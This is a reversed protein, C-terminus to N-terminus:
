GDTSPVTKIAHYGIRQASLDVQDHGFRQGSEGPVGHIGKSGNAVQFSGPYRYVELLFVDVGHITGPLKEDGQHTRKGFLLASGNGLIHGLGDSM